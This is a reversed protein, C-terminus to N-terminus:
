KYQYYWYVPFGGWKDLDNVRRANYFERGEYDEHSIRIGTDVIYTDVGEGSDKDGWVYPTNEWDSPKERWSTRIIGWADEGGYDLHCDPENPLSGRDIDLSVTLLYFLEYTSRIYTVIIRLSQNTLSNVYKNAPISVSEWYHLLCLSHNFDSAPNFYFLLWYSSM